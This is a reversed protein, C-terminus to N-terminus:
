RVGRRRQVEGSKSQDPLSGTVERFLGEHMNQQQDPDWATACTAVPIENMGGLGDRFGKVSCKQGTFAVPRWNSGLCFTDARMDMENSAEHRATSTTLAAPDLRARKVVREGHRPGSAIM